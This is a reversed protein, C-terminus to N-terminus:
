DNHIIGSARLRMKSPNIAHSTAEEMSIQRNQLWSALQVDSSLSNPGVNGKQIFEEIIHFNGQLLQASLSENVQAIGILPQIKNGSSNVLATSVLRKTYTALLELIYERPYSHLFLMLKSLGDQIGKAKINAIVLRNSANMLAHFASDPSHITLVEIDPIEDTACWLHQSCIRYPSASKIHTNYASVRAPAAQKLLHLILTTKGSSSAGLCLILGRKEKLLSSVEKPYQLTDASLDQPLLRIHNRSRRECHLPLPGFEPVLHTTKVLSHRERFFIIGDNLYIDSVNREIADQLYTM